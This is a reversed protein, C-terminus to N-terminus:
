LPFGCYMFPATLGWTAHLHTLDVDSKLQVRIMGAKSEQQTHFPRAHLDVRECGVQVSASGEWKTCVVVLFDTPKAASHHVGASQNSSTNGTVHM